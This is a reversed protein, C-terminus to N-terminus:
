SRSKRAPRESSIKSRVKRSMPWKVLRAEMEDNSMGDESVVRGRVSIGAEHVSAKRGSVLPHWEYLDRGEYLLRYACTAPLCNMKSMSKPTLVMCDKVIRTRDEYNSCRCSKLDLLKCAVDTFHIKGTEQEEFKNLCCRGCGDCLSEWERPTMETLKKTKWFPRAAKLANEKTRRAPEEQHLREGM